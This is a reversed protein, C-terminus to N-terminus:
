ARCHLVMWVGEHSDLSAALEVAGKGDTQVVLLEERGEARRCIPGRTVEVLVGWQLM